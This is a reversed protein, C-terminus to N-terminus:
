LLDAVGCLVGNEASRVNGPSVRLVEKEHRDFVHTTFSRHTRFTQRALANGLGHEQEALFGIVNGHADNIVYKNAQEFGVILNMMEIQRHVVISSNDLIHMAPHDSRLVGYPDEPIHVPALLGNTDDQAAQQLATSISDKSPTDDKKPKDHAPPPVQSSRQQQRPRARSIPSTVRRKGHNRATSVASSSSTSLRRVALGLVSQCTVPLM